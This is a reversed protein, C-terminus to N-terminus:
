CGEQLLVIHQLGVACSISFTCAAATTCKQLTLSAASIWWCKSQFAGFVGVQLLIVVPVPLSRLSAANLAVSGWMLVGALSLHLWDKHESSSSEEATLFVLIRGVVAVIAASLLALFWPVAFDKYHILVRNAFLSSLSMCVWLVLWLLQKFM